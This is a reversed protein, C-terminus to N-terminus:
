RNYTEEYVAFWQPLDAWREERQQERQAEEYAALRRFIEAQAQRPDTNRLQVLLHSVSGPDMAVNSLFFFLNPFFQLSEAAEISETNPSKTLGVLPM